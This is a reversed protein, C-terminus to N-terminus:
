LGEKRGQGLVGFLLRMLTPELERIDEPQGTRLQRTVVEVIGGIVTFADDRTAFPPAGFSPAFTQNDQYIWDAFADLIADRREAARPGAGIIVVLVTQAQEPYRALTELFARLRRRLHDEYNAEPDLAEATAATARFVEQAAADFLALICEEKNAFHEYFTAKSMGAERSIAEATADAYGVRTFVSAAAAFLRERQADM